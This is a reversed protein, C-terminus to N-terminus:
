GSGKVTGERESHKKACIRCCSKLRAPTKSIFIQMAPNKAWQSQLFTRFVEIAKWRRSILIVPKISHEDSADDGMAMLFDVESEMMVKHLVQKM